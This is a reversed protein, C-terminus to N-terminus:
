LRYQEAQTNFLKYYLTNEKKMLNKHTDFDSVSGQDLILVRDCFVSSSMRHSIYIATKDLVLNNFHEYIEAEAIPDLASTPEDLIILSASKYLARAIAIKQAQGGSLEVGEPDFSKNLRTHLGQPLGKIKEELGVQCMIKEVKQVDITDDSTINELISYALLRYDQFVAAIQVLLSEYSYQNIDQNNLTIIGEDPQYLRCLLKVLTTKGAGNLGVISIKEGKHITFSVNRLIWKNTKPYKFSVNDFSVSEIADLELKGECQKAEPLQMFEVLPDLYHMMQFIIMFNDLMRNFNLTFQIASGVYMTFDGISIQRGFQDSFVRLAVYFYVLGSQIANIMRQSGNTFGQRYALKKFEKNIEQNFYRVRQMLLPSMDYLRIDKTIRPDYSLNFYYGYRRNLPLLGQFFRRQYKRFITGILLSILIGVVLILVLWVSLTLMIAILGLITILSSVSQSFANIINSLASQNNCAFVAREKLDLYYPDELYQYEVDMIKKAMSETIMREVYANRVLLLRRYTKNVWNFFLNLGVVVVILIMIRTINQGGILEEILYKPIIVNGFVQFSTLLSGFIIVFIYSPSIRYMLGFLMKLKKIQKM